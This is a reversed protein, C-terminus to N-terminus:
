QWYLVVCTDVPLAELYAIAAQSYPGSAAAKLHPLLQGSLAFTLPEGMPDTALTELGREDDHWDLGQILPLVISRLAEPLDYDIWNFPFRTHPYVPLHSKVSQHPDVVLTLATSM